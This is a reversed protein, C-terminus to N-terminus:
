TGTLFKLQSGNVEEPRRRRRYGFCNKGLNVWAPLLRRCDSFSQLSIAKQRFCIGRSRVQCFRRQQPFLKIHERFVPVRITTLSCRHQCPLAFAHGRPSSLESESSIQAHRNLEVLFYHRATNHRFPFNSRPSPGYTIDLFPACELKIV